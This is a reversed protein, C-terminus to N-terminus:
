NLSSLLKSDKKRVHNRNRATAIADDKEHSAMLATRKQLLAAVRAESELIREVRRSSGDDMVQSLHISLITVRAELAGLKNNLGKFTSLGQLM